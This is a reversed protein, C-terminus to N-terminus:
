WREDKTIRVDTDHGPDNDLASGGLGLFVQGAHREREHHGDPDVPNRLNRGAAHETRVLNRSLPAPLREGAKDYGVTEAWVEIFYDDSMGGMRVRCHVEYEAEIREIRV